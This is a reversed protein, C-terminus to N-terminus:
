EALIHPETAPRIAQFTYMTTPGTGDEKPGIMRRPQSVFAIDAGAARDRTCASLGRASSYDFFPRESWLNFPLRCNEQRQCRIAVSHSMDKSYTIHHTKMRYNWGPMKDVDRLVNGWIMPAVVFREEDTGDVM